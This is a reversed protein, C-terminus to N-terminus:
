NQKVAVIRVSDYKLHAPAAFTSAWLMLSRWYTHDPPCSPRIDALRSRIRQEVKRWRLAHHRTFGTYEISDIKLGTIEIAKRLSETNYFHLHRPADFMESCVTNWLFHRCGSNPVECIFRGGPKLIKAVNRSALAPDICHELSHSMIVVDFQTSQIREPLIEGTGLLVEIGIKGAETVAKPDPDVGLTTHGQSNLYVLNAGHGCGIECVSGNAGLHLRRLAQDLDVGYDFTWALKTLIKDLIGDTGNPMHSKGQTYYADLAYFLPIEEATPLPFVSAHGCQDCRHIKGYATVELTKADIPMDLWSRTAGGCVICTGTM